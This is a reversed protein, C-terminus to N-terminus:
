ALLEKNQYINGLITIAMIGGDLSSVMNVCENNKQLIGWVGHVPDLIVQGRHQLACTDGLCMREVIDGEYIERGDKDLINTFQLFTIKGFYARVETSKNNGFVSAQCYASYMWESLDNVPSLSKRDEDYARFKLPRKM